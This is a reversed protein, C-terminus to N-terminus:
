PRLVGCGCALGSPHQVDQSMQVINLAVDLTLFTVPQPDSEPNAHQSVGEAATFAARPV